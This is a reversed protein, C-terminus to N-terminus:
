HMRNFWILSLICVALSLASNTSRDNSLALIPTTDSKTEGQPNSQPRPEPEPIPEPEQYDYCSCYVYDWLLGDGCDDLVYTDAGYAACFSGCKRAACSCDVALLGTCSQIDFTQSLRRRRNQLGSSGSCEALLAISLYVFIKALTM